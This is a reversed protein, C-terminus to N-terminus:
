MVGRESCTGCQQKMTNCDPWQKNHCTGLRRSNTSSPVPRGVSMSPQPELFQHYYRNMEVVLLTIIEMFFPLPVSFPASERMVHAAESIEGSSAGIFTHVVHRRPNSPLTWLCPQPQQGAVNGVDDEDESNISSFDPSAPQSISSWRSPPHPEEEDETDEFAYYKEKDSDSDMIIEQIQNQSLLHAWKVRLVERQM